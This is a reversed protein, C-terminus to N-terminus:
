HIEGTRSRQRGNQQVVPESKRKSCWCLKRRSLWSPSSTLILSDICIWAFLEPTTRLPVPKDYLYSLKMMGDHNAEDSFTNPEIAAAIMAIVQTPIGRTSIQIRSVPHTSRLWHAVALLQAVQLGLSRDGSSDVLLEWDSSDLTEPMSSGIFLPDLALVEHGSTLSEFVDKGAEKYGQDNLVITIPQDAPSDDQKLAMASASLGNSFLFGYSIEMFDMGKANTYRLAQATQVATYRVTSKLKERETARQNADLSETEERVATGSIKRALDLITLNGTPL